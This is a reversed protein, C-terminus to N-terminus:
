LQVGLGCTFIGLGGGDIEGRTEEKVISTMIIQGLTRSCQSQQGAQNRRRVVRGTWEIPFYQVEQRWPVEGSAQKQGDARVGSPTPVTNAEIGAVGGSKGSARWTQKESPMQCSGIIGWSLAELTKRQMIFIIQIELTIKLMQKFHGRNM